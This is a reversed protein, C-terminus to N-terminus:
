KGPEISVPEEAVEPAKAETSKVKRRIERASKTRLYYLKARRVKSTKVIEFKEITPLHLPFIREIGIGGSVKRITVTAGPGFGHKRAIVMGEFIQTRSKNGEKIKQHVKVTMGPRIEPVTRASILQSNYQRLLDIAM